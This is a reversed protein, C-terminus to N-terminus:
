YKLLFLQLIYKILLKIIQMHVYVVINYKIVSNILTPFRVKVKFWFQQM